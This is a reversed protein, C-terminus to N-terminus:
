APATALLSATVAERATDALVRPPADSPLPELIRVTIVGPRAEFASEHLVEHSGQVAVPVIPVGAQIALRFAGTLFRGPVGDFSRTGEPYFLVSEGEAVRAAAEALGGEPAKLDLYVCKSHTLVTSVLPRGKLSARAVFLFPKPIGLLLAPIDGMSQHNAVYVVPGDPPTGTSRVRIGGVGLGLWSWARMWRWYRRTTPNLLYHGWGPLIMLISFLGTWSMTWVFWLRSAVVSM